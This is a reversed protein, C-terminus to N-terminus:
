KTTMLGSIIHLSSIMHGPRSWLQLNPSQSFFVGAHILTLCPINNALWLPPADIDNHQGTLSLLHMM